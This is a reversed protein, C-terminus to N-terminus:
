RYDHKAFYFRLKQMGRITEKCPNLHQLILLKSNYLELFFFLKSTYIRSENKTCVTVLEDKKEPM